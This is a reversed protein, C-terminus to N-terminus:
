KWDLNINKIGQQKILNRITQTEGKIEPIKDDHTEVFLHDVRDIVGGNILDKLIECEAGEVDMKLIKVRSELSEIFECLNIIDVEVYKDNSVNGKFPLLSSGTSWYVEDEDSNEHLYLKMKENKVGVGEQRCIINGAGSYKEKLVNFAHPNPEFCYVTAGSKSLLQTVIGTNAGCDLAIDGKKLPISLLQDHAKEAPTKVLSLKRLWRNIM